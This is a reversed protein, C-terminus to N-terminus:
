APEGYRISYELFSREMEGTGSNEIPEVAGFELPPTQDSM